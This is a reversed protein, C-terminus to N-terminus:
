TKTWNNRESCPPIPSLFRLSFRKIRISVLRSCRSLHTQSNKSWKPLYLRFTQELNNPSVFVPEREAFWIHGTQTCGLVDPHQKRHVTFVSVTPEERRNKKALLLPHCGCLNWIIVGAKEVASKSEVAALESLTSCFFFFCFIYMNISCLTPKIKLPLHSLQFSMM